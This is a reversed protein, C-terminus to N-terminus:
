VGNLLQRANYVCGEIRQKLEEKSMIIDFDSILEQFADTLQKKLFYIDENAPEEAIQFDQDFNYAGDVISIGLKNLIDVDDIDDDESFIDFDDDSNVNSM